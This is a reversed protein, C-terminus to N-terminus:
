VLRLLVAFFAFTGILILVGSVAYLPTMRQQSAVGAIAAFGGSWLYRVLRRYELVSIVASMVGCFILALGLYRSAGPYRAAAAGPLQNVNSLFQVIAFGFGILAVSTRMYAMMTREIALRTRLWALHSDASVRVEFREAQGSVEADSM